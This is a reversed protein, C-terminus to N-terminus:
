GMFLGFDGFVLREIFERTRRSAVPTQLFPIRQRRGACKDQRLCDHLDQSGRGGGDPSPVQQLAGIAQTAEFGEVGM